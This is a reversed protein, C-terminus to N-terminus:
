LCAKGRYFNWATWPATAACPSPSRRGPGRARIWLSGVTTRYHAEPDAFNEYPQRLLYAVTHYISGDSNYLTAINEQDQLANPDYSADISVAPCFVNDRMYRNVSVDTVAELIAGAVGAGFNSYEYTTGAENKTFNARRHVDKSLMEYIPNSSGYGGSISLGATHSMLQRLTIPTDLFRTSAIDYGFYTSIDEDLDVLGREWLQMLGIGSVMKTVSAIRFYTDQTVPILNEINQYGYYRQYLIEGNKVVVLAGGTTRSKGFLTDVQSDIEDTSLASAFAPFWLLLCLVLSLLRKM